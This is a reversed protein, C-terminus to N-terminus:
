KKEKQSYDPANDKENYIQKCEPFGSCGWFYSDKTKNKRRVLGKGCKGCKYTESARQKPTIDPTGNNDKFTAGCNERDSCAWFPSYQGTILRIVGGTTDGCKPCPLQKKPERPEFDPKGGKDPYTANCNERNVCAWFLGHSGKRQVLLSQCKPCAIGEATNAKIGKIRNVEDGISKMLKTIFDSQKMAGREIEEFDQHWIATLDPTTAVDPLSACLAKGNETPVIVNKKGQKVEVIYERTFLTKILEDRTAATGIGGHEGEKGKDKALLTKKLEPDKVYKAVAALDNLLTSMTYLPKPKTTQKDAKCEACKGKEDAKHSNAPPTDEADDAASTTDDKDNDAGDTAANKWGPDTIKNSTHLFTNEECVITMKTQDYKCNQQFQLLYYEAIVGYIQAEDKTLKKMDPTAITPIIAHHASVKSSDFARSKIAPNATKVLGADAGINKAVAAIVDPADAHQEESLYQCDSRNYTILRHEERLKQTIEKVKDPKMHWRSAALSQLKLLNFPLPPPTEKATITVEELTAPKGKVATTIGTAYDADTIRGKDDTPADEAVHLRTNIIDGAFDFAATVTYYNSKKHNTNEDARRVILGLIPTQVRGVSIFKVGTLAPANEALRRNSQMALTYVRSMNYGYLQDAVQRAEAAQSLGFFDANDAMAKIARKVLETNNDNILVRKVPKKCKYYALIEDILLQGEPDPDGANVITDAKGILDKIIELQDKSKDLPKRKWPVFSMPLDDFSWQKYKIDYDEPDCLALMHGFCWTVIDGSACAIHGKNASGGGLAEAIARGLEPKEAIFLRM